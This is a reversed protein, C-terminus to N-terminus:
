TYLEVKSKAKRKLNKQSCEEIAETNRVNHFYIGKRPVETVNVFTAM